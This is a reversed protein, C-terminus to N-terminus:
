LEFAQKLRQNLKHFTEGFNVPLTKGLKVLKDLDKLACEEYLMCEAKQLWDHSNSLQAYLRQIEPTVLCYDKADLSLQELQPVTLRKDHALLPNLKKRIQKSFKEAEDILIELESPMEVQM